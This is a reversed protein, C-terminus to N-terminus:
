APTRGICNKGVAEASIASFLNREHSNKGDIFFLPIPNRKSEKEFARNAVRWFRLATYLRDLLHNIRFDLTCTITGLLRCSSDNSDVPVPAENLEYIDTLRHNWEITLAHIARSFGSVHRIPIEPLSEFGSITWVDFSSFTKIM